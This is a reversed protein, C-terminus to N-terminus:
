LNQKYFKSINPECQEQTACVFYTIELEEAVKSTESILYHSYYSNFNVTHQIVPVKLRNDWIVM